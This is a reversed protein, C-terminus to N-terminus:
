ARPLGDVELDSRTCTRGGVAPDTAFSCKLGQAPGEDSQSYARHLGTSNEIAVEAEALITTRSGRIGSLCM